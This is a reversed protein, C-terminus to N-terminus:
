TLASPVAHVAHGACWYWSAVPCREQLDSQAAPFKMEASLVCHTAQGSPSIEGTAFLCEHTDQGIPNRALASIDLHSAHGMPYKLSM